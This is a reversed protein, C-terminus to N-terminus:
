KSDLYFFSVIIAKMRLFIVFTSKVGGNISDMLMAMCKANGLSLKNKSVILNSM